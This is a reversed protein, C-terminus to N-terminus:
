EGKKRLRWFALERHRPGATHLESSVLSFGEVQVDPLASLDITDMMRCDDRGLPSRLRALTLHGHYPRTDQPGEPWTRDVIERLRAALEAGQGDDTMQLFLVRPLRLDPFGGLSGPAITFPEGCDAGTLATQLRELGEPPWEGLFQLTLHWASSSTWHLDLRRHWPDLRASLERVLQEGPHVALFVRV